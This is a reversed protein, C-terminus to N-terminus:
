ENNNNEIKFCALKLTNKMLMAITMPGVGGPVPTIYSAVKKADEFCVDGVLKYNKKRTKDVISNIGVDIIIAGPKIWEGLIFNPKGICSVLIDAQKIINEINKTKSHCITVTANKELLMRALPMGVINSRGIVVAHKGQIILNSREILEICGQPTCPIAHPTHGNLCLRGMNEVSFGDVDKEISITQLVSKENIHQPLPLQVLIAHVDDQSNLIKIKNILEQESINHPLEIDINNFNVKQAAKKKMKVYTKSDIREGVIVVALGPSFDIEKVKEKIENLITESIKKGDIIKAM